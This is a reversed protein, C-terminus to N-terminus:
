PAATFKPVTSDWPLIWPYGSPTDAFACWTYPAVSPLRTGNAVVTQATRLDYLEGIVGGKAGVDIKSNLYIRYTDYDTPSEWDNQQNTATPLAGSNGADFPGAIHSDINTVKASGLYATIRENTNQWPALITASTFVFRWYCPDTWLTRPGRPKGWEWFGLWTGATANRWLIRTVQGDTSRWIYYRKAFSSNGGNLVIASRADEDTATPRASTSGNTGGNATGFGALRSVTITLQVTTLSTWGMTLQICIQFKPNVQADQLVIWSNNLLDSTTTWRDVADMGSTSTNSSGIVTLPNSAFGILANKIGLMWEKIEQLSTSAPVLNDVSFQWTKILAPAGM